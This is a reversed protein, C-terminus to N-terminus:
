HGKQSDLWRNVTSPRWLCRRGIRTDCPPMRGSSLQRELFRRSLGTLASIDNLDWTLRDHIPISDALKVLRAVPPAPPEIGPPVPATARLPLTNRM